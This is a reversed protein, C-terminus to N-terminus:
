THIFHQQKSTNTIIGQIHAMRITANFICCRRQNDSQTLHSTWLDNLFYAFSSPLSMASQTLNKSSVILIAATKSSVTMIIQFFLYKDLKQQKKKTKKVALFTKKQIRNDWVLRNSFSTVRTYSLFQCTCDRPVIGYM